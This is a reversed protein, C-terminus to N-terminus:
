AMVFLWFPAKGGFGLMPLVFFTAAALAVATLGRAIFFCAVGNPNYVGARLLRRRLVKVNENDAASYHKTTYDILKQAARLGSYRLNRRGGPGDDDISVRAARRRVAERARVGIMVAFALTGTALFILASLMTTASSGFLAFTNSQDMM